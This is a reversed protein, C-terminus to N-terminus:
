TRTRASRGPPRDLGDLSVNGHTGSQPREGDGTVPQRFPREELCHPRGDRIPPRDPAGGIQARRGREQTIREAELGGRAAVVPPLLCADRVGATEVTRQGLPGVQLAVRRERFALDGEFGLQRDDHRATEVAVDRVIRGDPVPMPVPDEDLRGDGRGLRESDRRRASANASLIAVSIPM